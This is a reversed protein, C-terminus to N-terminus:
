RRTHGYGRSYSPLGHWVYINESSFGMVAKLLDLNCIYGHQDNAKIKLYRKYNQFVRSRLLTDDALSPYSAQLLPVGSHLCFAKGAWSVARCTCSTTYVACFYECNPSPLCRRHSRPPHPCSLQRQSLSPAAPRAAAWDM